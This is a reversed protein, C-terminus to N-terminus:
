SITCKKHTFFSWILICQVAHIKRHIHLIKYVLTGKENPWVIERRRRILVQNERQRQYIWVRIDRYKSMIDIKLLLFLFVQKCFVVCVCFVVSQAVGITVSTYISTPTGPPYCTGTESTAHIRRTTRKRFTNTTILKWQTQILGPFNATM